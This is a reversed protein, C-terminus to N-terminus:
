ARALRYAKPTVGFRRRFATTLHSQSSFGASYAIEAIPLERRTALLEAARELRRELVYQHPSSGTAAKFARGFTYRDLGAIRAIVALRLDGTLNDGIYDLVAGLPRGRLRPEPRVAPAPARNSYTRALHLLLTAAISDAFLQGAYGGARVEAGLAVCLQQVLPDPRNTVGVFEVADPL